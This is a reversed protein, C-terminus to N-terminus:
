QNVLAVDYLEMDEGTFQDWKPTTILLNQNQLKFESLYQDYLRAVM